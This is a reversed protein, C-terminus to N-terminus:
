QGHLDHNGFQWLGRSLRDGCFRWDDAMSSTIRQMAGGPAGAGQSKLMHFCYGHYPQPTDTSNSGPSYGEDVADAVLPGLPSPQEGEATPWFLGNKKGPDSIFKEAYQPVGDGDADSTSYDHQADVIARCVEITDLENQGIRRNVIEDEGAATDFYWSNKKDKVIPIPLPWDNKGIVLTVHKENDVLLKHKEDYAHLFKKIGNRDAVEDGSFIVNDAEPGLIHELKRNSGERMAKVLHHTAHAPSNFVEQQQQQEACGTVFFMTLALLVLSHLWTVRM